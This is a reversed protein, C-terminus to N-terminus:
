NKILLQSIEKLNIIKLIFLGLTGFVALVIFRWSGLSYDISLYGVSVMILGFILIKFTHSVHIKLKFVNLVIVVQALATGIQTFFTAMAAGEAKYMPILIFNAIVNILIGFLAMQNLRRMSGNATLLSGFAYGTSIPIFSLIIWSFAESSAIIEQKYILQMLSESSFAASIAITMSVGVLLLGATQLVGVVSEKQKIQKAFIPLLLGAVLFAFMNVADLLRFGQAYVGAQEKGDPLLRELMVADMRTYLMMLLILLAYPKSQKLLARSFLHKISFRIKGIKGISLLLAVIATLGYTATQAYVFWEIQFPTTILSSYLLVSCIIILLLRDLVSLIADIKFLHLGAFNSRLYLVLGSLFQNLVLMVLLHMEFDNYGLILAAGVTIAFYVSGLLTKLGLISGIYKSVTNPHQAINKTNYNTIGIDLFMNFFFSFNLLTFYIGYEESGVTNQVEVDIAFIYFPKILVNLLVILILNGYFKRQMTQTERAVFCIYSFGQHITLLLSKKLQNFL